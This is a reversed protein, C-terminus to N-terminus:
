LIKRFVAKAPEGVLYKEYGNQLAEQYAKLSEAFAKAFYYVDDDTHSFCPVFAGQFLVGCRIMEQMFLTRYGQCFTKSADKFVFIPMWDAKVVEIFDQVEADKILQECLDILKRGISHNHTIVNKNEFENISAIAAAMTHTEGGHTTSILFVKEEGERTIGGLEMVEKKGTLACFSFGNAIGKGWTAMDPVVGYKTISGPFDTKFGTVMEDAIFLAGNQHCLEIAQKLFNEVKFDEALHPYNGKEPETIVCAIQNPYKEFLENLSDINFSQFTVSLNSVEEPIGKNCATKGIFWDDYSYFPHDGPFAVLKRGTKARALKVAATTVISGNKAFKVQDHGPVLALFKEAMEKELVSPRQFNVGKELESKVAEIVTEYAHGLSVSTLGMSCDLYQNGDADWVYAGKGKAIAAPSLIPFQDDGKSYTHCGGPILDHITNRYEDSTKFNTIYRLQIEEFKSKMYGENRLITNNIKRVEENALIFDAYVKWHSESGLRTILRSILEFDSPEDVTIRLASYAKDLDFKDIKQISTRRIYPTVHERDVNSTANEWAEELKSFTFIEVDLGDPYANQTQNSHYELNNKLCFDITEDIVNADILPCDSTIRVVYKPQDNKVTQYFRDLVDELSGKYGEIDLKQGIKLIADSENEQTTAIKWQSVLKSKSARELHYELITKGDIEKLVKGPLRSSGIRAQTVGIIKM